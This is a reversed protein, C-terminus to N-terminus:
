SCVNCVSAFCVAGRLLITKKKVEIYTKILFSFLQNNIRLQLLNKLTQSVNDGHNLLANILKETTESMQDFENVCGPSIEKWSAHISIECEFDSIM